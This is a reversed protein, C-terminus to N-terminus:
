YHSVSVSSGPDSSIGFMHVDGLMRTMCLLMCSLECPIWPSQADSPVQILLSQSASAVLLLQKTKQVLM